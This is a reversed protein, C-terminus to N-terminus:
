PLQNYSGQGGRDKIFLPQSLETTLHSLEPIDQLPQAPSSPQSIQVERSTNKEQYDLTKSEPPLSSKALEYLQQLM